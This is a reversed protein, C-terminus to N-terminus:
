KDVDTKSVEFFVSETFEKIEAEDTVAYDAGGIRETTCPLTYTNIDSIDMDKALRAYKAIDAMNINTETYKLAVDAVSTINKVINGQSLSQFLASAFEQQVKVRDLDAMPYAATEDASGYNGHRYRVLGEAQAGDLLQQGPYLDIHLGQEPDDYIMRQPVDFWVGGIEDVLVRFADTSIKIYYDLKIGFLEEVQMVTYSVGYEKGAYHHVQNIKMYGSEPVYRGENKLTNIREEPMKVRTDRPISVINVKKAESDYCGAIIADTRTGDSDVGLILFTISKKVPNIINDIVAPSEIVGFLKGDAGGFYSYGFIVAAGILVIVALMIFVAKFFGGVKNKRENEM